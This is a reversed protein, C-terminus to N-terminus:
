ITSKSNESCYVFLQDLKIMTMLILQAQTGERRGYITCLKYMAITSTLKSFVLLIRNLKEKSIM